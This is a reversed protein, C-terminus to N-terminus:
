IPNLRQTLTLKCESDASCELLGEKMEPLNGRLPPSLYRPSKNWTACLCCCWNGSKNFQVHSNIYAFCNSCRGLDTLSVQTLQRMGSSFPQVVCGWPLGSSEHVDVEFFSFFFFSFFCFTIFSCFSSLVFFLFRHSSFTDFLFENRWNGGLAYRLDL